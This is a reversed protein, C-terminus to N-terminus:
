TRPTLRSRMFKVGDSGSISEDAGYGMLFFVKGGLATTWVGELILYKLEEVLPLRVQDSRTSHFAEFNPIGAASEEHDHTGALDRM